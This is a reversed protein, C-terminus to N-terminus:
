IRRRKGGAGRTGRAIDTYGSFDFYLQLSYAYVALLAEAGSYLNPTDFVRNVFNAALYDAILAKKMLGLGILFFARGGDVRSLVPVAAFQKVLETVRTNPAALIIPFFSVAAFHELLSHTGEGDRRYLDLTYTLAQVCLILPQPPFSLGM